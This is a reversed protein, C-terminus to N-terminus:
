SPVFYQVDANAFWRGAGVARVYLHEDIAGEWRMGHMFPQSGACENLYRWGGDGEPETDFKWSFEIADEGVAALAQNAIWNVRLAEGSPAEAMLYTGETDQDLAHPTIVNFRGSLTDETAPNILDGVKNLLKLLLNYKAM